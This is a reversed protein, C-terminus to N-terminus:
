PAIFGYAPYTTAGMAGAPQWWVRIQSWDNADSVDVVPEGLTVRHHVWNAQDVTIERPSRQSRVVAVHGYPLRGSRRLVLVGGPVPQSAKAYRGDAQDWWSAADGYLQLGSIERAYPACELSSSSSQLGPHGGCAALCLALCVALVSRM